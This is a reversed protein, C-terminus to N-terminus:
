DDASFKKKIKIKIILNFLHLKLRIGFLILCQNPLDDIILVVPSEVQTLPGVELLIELGCDVCFDDLLKLHLETLNWLLPDIKKL